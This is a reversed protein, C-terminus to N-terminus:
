HQILQEYLEGGELTHITVILNWLPETMEIHQRHVFGKEDVRKSILVYWHVLACFQNYLFSFFFVFKPLLWAWFDMKLHMWNLLSPIMDDKVRFAQHESEKVISGELEVFTVPHM